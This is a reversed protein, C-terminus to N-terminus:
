RWYSVIHPLPCGEHMVLQIFHNGDIYGMAVLKQSAPPPSNMPFFTLSQFKSILVFVINYCSAVVLGMDPMSMWKNPPAPIESCDLSYLLEQWREKGFLNLYMNEKVKLENSLDLWVQAWNEGMELARGVVRFGCHGDGIVNIAEKIHEALHSPMQKCVEIYFRQTSILTQTRMHYGIKKKAITKKSFKKQAKTNEEEMVHEFLSPDRKTSKPDNNLRKYSGRPRGKLSLPVKPERTQSSTPDMIERLKRKIEQRQETSTENFRRNIGKFEAVIDDSIHVECEKKLSLQKWNHHIICLPFQTIFSVLEHACPLGMSYRIKHTCEWAQCYNTAKVKDEEEKIAKLATLSICGVLNTYLSGTYLTSMQIVSHGFLRKIETHQITIMQDFKKWVTTLNGISVELFKKLLSHGSEVRNTTINGLHLFKDVWASVFYEKYPDIWTSVVYVFVKPNKEAYGILLLNFEINFEIETKANVLNQWKGLFHDCEIGKTFLKRCHALINRHIHAQCLLNKSHPFVHKIANMLALERDTVLVLPLSCSDLISKFCELAWCYSRETEDPMFTFIGFFSQNISTVGVISLLSMRYRNTKYTCDLQFVSPFMRCLKISFHHSFFMSELQSSDEKVRSYCVYGGDTVCKYLFQIPTRGGLEDKHVAARHNYITRITTTNSSNRKKLSSLIKRPKVGLVYMNGILKEEDKDLRGAFSHVELHVSGHNHKGCLVEVTWEDVCIDKQGRIQFPCGCKKSTTKRMNKRVQKLNIRNYGARDCGLLVRPRPRDTVRDSGLITVVYSLSRGIKRAWDILEEKSAFISKTQFFYTM